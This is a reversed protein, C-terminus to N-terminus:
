SLIIVIKFPNIMSFVSPVKKVHIGVFPFRNVLQLEDFSWIKWLRMEECETHTIRM